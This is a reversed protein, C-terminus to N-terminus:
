KAIPLKTNQDLNSDLPNSLDSNPIRKLAEELPIKYKEAIYYEPKLLGSTTDMYMGNLESERDVIVSDDFDFSVDGDKGFKVPTVPLQYLMGLSSMAYILDKLAKQLSKQIDKVTQYMRQKSAKIETATKATETEKSLTGYSLGCLFEAQRLLENLGNFLSSDRIEPSYINWGSTKDMSPDIDLARYLRENGKALGWDIINGQNDKIAKLMDSSVDIAAEKAKYEWKIQSFREDIEQLIGNPEAICSYASVGLPSSTDITNAFPMKFYAFLPKDIYKITTEKDIGSWEPVETLEISNGLSDNMSMNIQNCNEKKFAFNLIQCASIEKGNENIKIMNHYEIRTFIDNGQTKTELFIAARVEGRSNFTVPFFADAQITDVYIHGDAVYPKFVIGGLGCAFQTSERIKDIIVQYEENLFDNHNITSEFEITSVRALEIAIGNGTNSSFVTKKDVWPPTNNQIQKLLDQHNAMDTSMAVNVNVAKEVTSKNMMKQIVEKIKNIITNIIM